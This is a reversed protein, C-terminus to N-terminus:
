RPIGESFQEKSAVADSPAAHEAAWKVLTRLDIKSPGTTPWESSSIFHYTRPIKFSALLGECHASLEEASAHATAVLEVFAVPLEGYVPHAVGVVKAVNVAPHEQLINAVEFLSVNEGGVKIIDKERGLFLLYGHDDIYGLDGSHLWGDSDVIKRTAEEDASYGAMVSWGRVLIEGVKLNLARSLELEEPSGSPVIALEIGPQPEGGCALRREDSDTLATMCTNGTLETMGYVNVFPFSLLDYARQASSRSGAAIWGTRLTSVDSQRFGDITGEKIFMVDMGVQATCKEEAITKVATVPNFHHTTYLSAGVTTASLLSLVSGGTHFFPMASFLRDGAELGMRLSCNHGNRVMAEGRLMVGKPGATSGSTFNIVAVHQRPTPVPEGSTRSRLLQALPLFRGGKSDNRSGAVTVAMRVPFDDDGLLREIAGAGIADIAEPEIFLVSAGCRALVFQM